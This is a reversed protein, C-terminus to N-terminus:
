ILQTGSRFPSKELLLSNAGLPLWNKGKLTTDTQDLLSCIREQFLMTHSFIVM